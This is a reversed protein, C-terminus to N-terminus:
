VISRLIWSSICGHESSLHQANTRVCIEHVPMRAADSEPLMIMAVLM